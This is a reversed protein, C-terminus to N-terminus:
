PQRLAENVERVFSQTDAFYNPFASRLAKASNVSVLVVDRENANTALRAPSGEGAFYAQSAEMFDRQGYPTISLTGVRRDLELLVYRAKRFRPESTKKLAERYARLRELVELERVWYRLESLLEAREIPTGPVLPLKEKIALVSGMLAFFRLWSKEGIESKLHQNTFLGVTEVATAWAHQRRTRLQVEIRLGEYAPSANGRYAYVLHIGRYGSDRPAGDPELIGLYDYIRVQKHRRNTERFRSCIERLHRVSGVIGRCGAIDHMRTLQMKSQIQLKLVIAPLRKLRQVADSYRDVERAQRELRKKFSGMPIDHAVRWRDVIVKAEELDSPEADFDALVRAAADIKRKSFGDNPWEM